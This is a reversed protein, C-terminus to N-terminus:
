DPWHIEFPINNEELKELLRPDPGIGTRSSAVFIWRVHAGNEIMEADRSVQQQVDAKSWHTYGTKVELYLKPPGAQLFDYYRYPGTNGGNIYTRSKKIQYSTGFLQDAVYREGAAGNLKWSAENIVPVPLGNTKLTSSRMGSKMIDNLHDPSMFTLAFNTARTSVGATALRSQLAPDIEDIIRSMAYTPDQGMAALKLAMSRELAKTTSKSIFKILLVVAREGDGLEPIVGLLSVIAELPKNRGALALGDRLDSVWGVGPPLLVSAMNGVLWGISDTPCVEGCLFGLNVDVFFQAVSFPQSPALPDEGDGIHAIEYADDKGDNDTDRSNPDTGWLLEDGDLVGDYDLDAILPAMGVEIEDLDYVGDADSDSLRPDSVVYFALSGTTTVTGLQAASPRSGIEEGDELGDWDTDAMEPDSTYRAPMNAYSRQSTSVVGRIEVKDPIGDDDTDLTDSLPLSYNYPIVDEIWSNLDTDTPVYSYTGGTDSALDELWLSSSSSGVGVDLVHVPDTRDRFDIYGDPRNPGWGFPKAQGDTVFLVTHLRCQAPDSAFQGAQMGDRSDFGGIAEEIVQTNIISSDSEDITSDMPANVEILDLLQLAENPTLTIGDPSTYWREQWTDAVYFNGGGGAGGRSFVGAIGFQRITVRDGIRLSSLVTRIATFREGTPDNDQMSSTADLVVEVDLRPAGQEAYYCQNANSRWEDLDVVAYRVDLEPSDITITNDATSVSVNNNVFEWRKLTPNWKIPALNSVLSVPATYPIKVSAISPPSLGSPVGRSAEETAEDSAGANVKASLTVAGPFDVVAGQEVTVVAMSGEQATVSAVAVHEGDPSFDTSSEVDRTVVEEVDSESDGDSDALTPDLGNALEYADDLGDADTDSKLPDTGGLLEDPDSLGDFDSDVDLLSTGAIVEDLNTIGDGDADELGDDVADGDTDAVLPDTYGSLAHVESFDNLGDGDTDVLLPSTGLRAEADDLLGDGDTDITSAGPTASGLLLPDGEGAANTATVTFTYAVGNTLGEVRIAQRPWAAVAHVLYEVSGPMVTVNYSTVPNGNNYAETWIVDIFDDGARLDPETPAGPLGYAYFDVFGPSGAGDATEATVNVYYLCDELLDELDISEDTTTLSRSDECFPTYLDVNYHDIVGGGLDNPPDWSVTGGTLVIAATVNLPETPAYTSVEVPVTTTPGDGLVNHPTVAVEYEGFALGTFDATRPFAPLELTIDDPSLTVRYGTVPAFDLNTGAAWTVHVSHQNQIATPSYVASPLSSVEFEEFDSWDSYGDGQVFAQWRLEAEEFPALDLDPVFSAVGDVDTVASGSAVEVPSSENWSAEVRFAVEAGEEDGVDAVLATGPLVLASDVPSVLTPAPVAAGYHIRTPPSWFGQESGAHLRVYLFYTDGETLTGTPLNWDVYQVGYVHTSAVSDSVVVANAEDEIKLEFDMDPLPEEPNEDYAAAQILPEASLVTLGKATTYSPDAYVQVSPWDIESEVPEATVSVDDWYVPGSTPTADNNGISWDQTTGDATFTYTLEEWGGTTASDHGVGHVDLSIDSLGTTQSADVWASLTYDHGDILGTLTDSMGVWYGTLQSTIAYSWTGTNSNRTTFSAITSGDATFPASAFEDMEFDQSHIVAPSHWGTGDLYADQTLTVDDWYVPGSTPSASNHGFSWWQTSSTATFTYDVLQWGSTSAGSSYGVGYAGIEIDSLGSTASADVWGSLTYSRGITLGAAEESMGVWYGTLQSELAYSWDGGHSNATTISAITSGDNLYPTTAFGSPEYSTSHLTIPSGM